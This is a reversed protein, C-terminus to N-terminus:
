SEVNVSHSGPMQVAVDFEIPLQTHVMIVAASPDQLGRSSEFSGRNYILVYIGKRELNLNPILPVQHEKESIFNGSNIHTLPVFYRKAKNSFNVIM